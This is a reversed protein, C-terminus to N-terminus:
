NKTRILWFDQSTKPPFQSIDPFDLDLSNKMSASDEIKSVEEIALKHGQEAALKLLELGRSPRSAFGDAGNFIYLGWHINLKLFTKNLQWSM